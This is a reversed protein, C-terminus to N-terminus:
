ASAAPRHRVSAFPRLRRLWPLSPDSWIVLVAIGLYSFIQVRASLEIMVHFVVATAVAWPRTRRWWFGGAIFLETLVILKAAVTHFSRDVLIDNVFEPLISARLKAEQTIVRGWTVTGGFWDGDILKSFGSAGYVLACEFRLLWLPWAPMTADTTVGRRRRLWADVSLDRGCPAIALVLLVAVLYARNNHLHTTSLFVNYTVVGFATVTAARTQWGVTMALAAILGVILAATYPGPGLVPYWDVFPHHFRDHFTDGDIADSVFPRLHVVSIPGVLIRVLALSRVSVPGALLADFRQLPTV